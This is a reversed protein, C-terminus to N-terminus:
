VVSKRDIYGVSGGITIPGNVEFAVNSTIIAPSVDNLEMTAGVFTIEGTSGGGVANGGSGIGDYIRLQNSDDIVITGAPLNDSQDIIVESTNIRQTM